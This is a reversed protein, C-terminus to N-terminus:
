RAGGASKKGFPNGGKSPKKGGFPPKGGSMKGGCAM